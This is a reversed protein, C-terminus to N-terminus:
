MEQIFSQCDQLGLWHGFVKTYNAMMKCLDSIHPSYISAVILSGVSALANEEFITPWALIFIKCLCGINFGISLFALCAVIPWEILAQAM